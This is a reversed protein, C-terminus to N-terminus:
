CPHDNPQEEKPQEEIAPLTTTRKRADLYTMVRSRAESMLGAFTAMYKIRRQESHEKDPFESCSLDHAKAAAGVTYQNVLQIYRCSHWRPKDVRYYQQTEENWLVTERCNCQNATPPPLNPRPESRSM